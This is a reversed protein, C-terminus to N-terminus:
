KSVLAQSDPPAQNRQECTRVLLTTFTSAPVNWGVAIQVKVNLDESFFASSFRRFSFESLLVTFHLRRLKYSTNQNKCFGFECTCANQRTVSQRNRSELRAATSSTGRPSGSAQRSSFEWCWGRLYSTGRRIPAISPLIGNMIFSANSEDM